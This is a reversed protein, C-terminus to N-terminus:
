VVCTSTGQTPGSVMTLFNIVTGTIRTARVSNASRGAVRVSTVAVIAKISRITFQVNIFTQSFRTTIISFTDISMSRVLANALLTVRAFVALADINWANGIRTFIATIAALDVGVVVL